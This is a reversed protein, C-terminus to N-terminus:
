EEEREKDAEYLVAAILETIRRNEEKLCFESEPSSETDRTLIKQCCPIMERVHVFGAIVAGDAIFIKDGGEPKPTVPAYFGWEENVTVVPGVYLDTIEPDIIKPQQEKMHGIYEKDVRYMGYPMPQKHHMIEREFDKRYLIM